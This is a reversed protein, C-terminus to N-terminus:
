DGTKLTPAGCTCTKPNFGSLCVGEWQYNNRKKWSPAVPTSKLQRKAEELLIPQNYYRKFLRISAIADTEASHEEGIM